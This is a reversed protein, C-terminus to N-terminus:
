AHEGADAGSGDQPDIGIEDVDLGVDGVAQRRERRHSQRLARHLFPALPHVRREGIGAVRKGQLADRHIEGRGVDALVAGGEVQRDGEADQRRGALDGALPQTADRDQALQTQLARDPRHTSRQRHREGSPTGAEVRQHEGFFVKGLRTHHLAQANQTGRVQRLQCIEQVALGLQLVRFDVDGAQELLPRSVVHVERFYLPLRVGFAREFDRRRPRM